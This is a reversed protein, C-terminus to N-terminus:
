QGVAQSRVREVSLITEASDRSVATVEFVEGTSKVKLRDVAAVPIRRGKIRLKMSGTSNRIGQVIDEGASLTERAAYYENTGDAPDPWTELDEGNAQKAGRTYRLIVVRLNFEGTKARYEAV